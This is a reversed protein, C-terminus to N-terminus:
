HLCEDISLWYKDITEGNDLLRFEVWKVSKKWKDFRQFRSFSQSVEGSRTTTLPQVLTEIPQRKQDQLCVELVLNSSTNPFIIEGEFEIMAPQISFGTIAANRIRSERDITKEAPAFALLGLSVGFLVALVLYEVWAVKGKDQQLFISGM